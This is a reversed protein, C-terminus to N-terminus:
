RKQQIVVFFSDGLCLMDDTCEQEGQKVFHFQSSQLWSHSQQPHYRLNPGVM